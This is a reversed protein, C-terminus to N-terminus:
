YKSRKAKLRRNVGLFQTKPTNQRLLQVAIDVLGGLLRYDNCIMDKSGNFM